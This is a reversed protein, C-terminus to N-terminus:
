DYGHDLEWNLLEECVCYDSPVCKCNFCCAHCDCGCPCGNYVITKGNEDLPNVGMRPSPTWSPTQQKKTLKKNKKKKKSIPTYDDRLPAFRNGSILDPSLPKKYPGSGPEACLSQPFGTSSM